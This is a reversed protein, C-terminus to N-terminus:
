PEVKRITRGESIKHDVAQLTSNTIRLALLVQQRAHEGAIRQQHQQEVRAGLVAAIAVAAAMAWSWIPWRRQQLQRPEPVRSLVKDAFGAPANRQRLGRCLEEEFEHDFDVM